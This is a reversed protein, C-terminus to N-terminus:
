YMVDKAVREETIINIMSVLIHDDIHVNRYREDRYMPIEEKIAEGKNLEYCLIIIYPFVIIMLM